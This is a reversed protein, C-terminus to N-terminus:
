SVKPVYRNHLQSFVSFTPWLEEPIRELEENTFQWHSGEHIFTNRKSNINLFFEFHDTYNLEAQKSLETLSHSWKEGTLAPLLKERKERSYRYDLRLRDRLTKELNNARMINECLETTLGDWLTCFLIPIVIRTDTENTYIHDAIGGSDPPPKSHRLFYFDQIANVLVFSNLGFHFRAAPIPVGCHECPTGVPQIIPVRYVRSCNQCVYFNGVLSNWPQFQVEALNM